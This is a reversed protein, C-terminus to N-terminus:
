SVAGGPADDSDAGPGASVWFREPAPHPECRLGRPTMSARCDLLAGGSAAGLLARRVAVAVVDGAAARVLSRAGEVPEVDDLRVEVEDWDDLRASPRRAVVTGRLRTLNPAAAVV